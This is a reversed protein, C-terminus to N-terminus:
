RLDPGREAPTPPAPAKQKRSAHWRDAGGNSERARREHDTKRWNGAEAASAGPVHFPPQHNHDPALLAMIAGHRADLDLIDRIVDVRHETPARGGGM